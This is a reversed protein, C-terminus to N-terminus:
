PRPRLERDTEAHREECETLTKNTAEHQSTRSLLSPSGDLFEQMHFAIGRFCRMPYPAKHGNFVDLFWRMLFEARQERQTM